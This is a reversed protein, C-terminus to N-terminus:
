DVPEKRCDPAGEPAAMAIRIAQQYDSIMEPSTPFSTSMIHYLDSGRKTYVVVSTAGKAYPGTPVGHTSMAAVEIIRPLRTEELKGAALVQTISVSEICLDAECKINGLHDVVAVLYHDPSHWASLEVSCSVDRIVVTQALSSMGACLAFFLICIGGQRAM